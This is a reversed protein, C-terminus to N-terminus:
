CIRWVLRGFVEARCSVLMSQRGNTLTVVTGDGWRAEEEGIMEEEEEESTDQDFYQAGVFNPNPVVVRLAGGEM